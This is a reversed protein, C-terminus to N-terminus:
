EYRLARAPDLRAARYAPILGALTCILMVTGAIALLDARSTASPIDSLQYLESPLLDMRLRRSLFHMLTNRYHLTFLGTGFGGLTGLIGAIWGQWIFVGMIQGSSFGLAKLLGVERTKQVTVTILTNTIGFAAVITIFILLFFMMNKEVRLATFLQRNQEMWTTVTFNRPLRSRVDQAVQAARYPDDTKVQLGHIGSILGFLDQATEISCLVYGIDFDYMGLDFIGAVRLDEPLRLVDRSAFSQPSFASVSDGVRIGLRDALDKGVLIDRDEVSYEGAVLHERVRSVREERAPRIGRLFPSHVAGRHVIFVLGQVYPAVGRVGPTAEITDYAVDAEEIPEPANVTIHANFGLIKDRWVDDFGNMVSLVIVLMAVGLIVGLVSLITVISIFTRKPRMYKLALFISFPLTM